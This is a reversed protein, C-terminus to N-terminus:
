LAYCDATFPCLVLATPGPTTSLLQCDATVVLLEGKMASRQSSVVQSSIASKQSSMALQEDSVASQEDSVVSQEISM